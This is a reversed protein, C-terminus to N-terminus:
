CLTIMHIEGNFRSLLRRSLRVFYFVKTGVLFEDSSRSGTM